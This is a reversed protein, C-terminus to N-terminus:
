KRSALAKARVIESVGMVVVGQRALHPLERGLLELVQPSANVVGVGYGRRSCDAVFDDFRIKLSAAEKVGRDIQSVPTLIYVPAELVRGLEEVESYQEQTADVFYLKRDRVEELVVRMVDRDEVALGGMYTKVGAAPGVRGLARGVLRRIKRASHDVLVANAGPDRVPFAKPEMPLDLIVEMGAARAEAALDGANDSEPYIAATFTGPLDRFKRALAPDPRGYDEVIIGLRVQVPVPPADPLVVVTTDLGSGEPALLTLAIRTRPGAQFRLLVSRDPNEDGSLLVLGLRTLEDTFALNGQLTSTGPNLQVRGACEVEGSSDPECSLLPATPLDLGASARAMAREVVPRLHSAKSGFVHQATWYRGKPTFVLRAAGFGVAALVVLV